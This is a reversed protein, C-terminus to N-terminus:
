YRFSFGASLITYGPRNAFGPRLSVFAGFRRYWVSAMAGFRFGISRNQSYSLGPLLQIGFAWDGEERIYGVDLVSYAGLGSDSYVQVPKSDKDLLTVKLTHWSDYGLNLGLVFLNGNQWPRYRLELISIDGFFGGSKSVVFRSEAPHNFSEPVDLPYNYGLNIQGFLVLSWTPTGNKASVGFIPAETNLKKGVRNSSTGPSQAAASFTLLAIAFMSIITKM